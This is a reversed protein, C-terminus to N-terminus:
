HFASQCVRIHYCIFCQLYKHLFGWCSILLGFSLLVNFSHYLMFLHFVYPIYNLILFDISTICWMFLIFYLFWYNWNICFLLKVFNLATKQNFFCIFWLFSSWYLLLLIHFVWLLCQIWHHFIAAGERLILFLMLITDKTAELWCLVPLM